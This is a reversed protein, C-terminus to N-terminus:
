NKWVLCNILLWHYLVFWWWDCTKQFCTKLSIVLIWIWEPIWKSEKKNEYKSNEPLFFFLFIVHNKTKFKLHALIFEITFSKFLVDCFFHFIFYWSYLLGEGLIIKTVLFLEHIGFNINHLDKFFNGYFSLIMNHLIHMCFFWAISFWTISIWTLRPNSYYFFVQVRVM